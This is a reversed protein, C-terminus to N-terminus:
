ANCFDLINIIVILEILGLHSCHEVVLTYANLAHFTTITIFIAFGKVVHQSLLVVNLQGHNLGDCLGM